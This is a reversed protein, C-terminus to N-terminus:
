LIRKIFDTLYAQLNDLDYDVSDTLQYLTRNFFIYGEDTVMILRM